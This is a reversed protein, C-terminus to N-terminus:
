QQGLEMVMGQDEGDENDSSEEEKVEKQEDKSTDPDSFFYDHEFNYMLIGVAEFGFFAPLTERM